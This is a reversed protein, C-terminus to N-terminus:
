RSGHKRLWKKLWRRRYWNRPVKSWFPLCLVNELDIREEFYWKGCKRKAHFLVDDIYPYDMRRLSYYIRGRCDQFLHRLTLNTKTGPFRIHIGNRTRYIKNPLTQANLVIQLKKWEKVHDIDLGLDVRSMISTITEGGDPFFWWKKRRGRPKWMMEKERAVREIFESVKRKSDELLITEVGKIEEIHSAPRRRRIVIKRLIEDPHDVWGATVDKAIDQFDVRDYAYNWIELYATFTRDDRDEFETIWEFGDVVEGTECMGSPPPMLLSYGREELYTELVAHAPEWIGIERFEGTRMTKSKPAEAILRAEIHRWNYPKDQPSECRVLVVYLFQVWAIKLVIEVNVTMCPKFGNYYCWDWFLMLRGDPLWRSVGYVPTRGRLITHGELKVEVIKGNLEEAERYWSEIDKKSIACDALRLRGEPVRHVRWRYAKLHVTKKM